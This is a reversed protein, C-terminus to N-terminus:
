NTVRVRGSRVCDLTTEVHHAFSAVEDFGFMAGSGKITHFARFLRNVLEQNSEDKELELTAVDIDGLLDLAEQRYSAAHESSPAM